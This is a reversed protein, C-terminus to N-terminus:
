GPGASYGGSVIQGSGASCGRPVIEYPQLLVNRYAFIAIRGKAIRQITSSAGPKSYQLVPRPHSKETYFCKNYNLIM